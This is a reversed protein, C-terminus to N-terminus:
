HNKNFFVYTKERNLDTTAALGLKHSAMMGFTYDPGGGPGDPCGEPIDPGMRVIRTSKRVRRAPPLWVVRVMRVTMRVM